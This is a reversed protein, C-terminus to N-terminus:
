QRLRMMGLAVSTIWAEVIHWPAPLTLVELIAVFVGFAIYLSHTNSVVYSRYNQFVVDVHLVVLDWLMLRRKRPLGILLCNILLLLCCRTQPLKSSVSAAAASCCSLSVFILCIVAVEPALLFFDCFFIFSIIWVDATVM